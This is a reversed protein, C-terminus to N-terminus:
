APQNTRLFEYRELSVAVTFADGDNQPIGPQELRLVKGMCRLNVNGGSGASLTIVYEVPGGAEIRNPSVLLVGGSSINQTRGFRSM